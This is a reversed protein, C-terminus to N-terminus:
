AASVGGTEWASGALSFSADSVPREGHGHSQPRARCTPAHQASQLLCGAMCSVVVGHM